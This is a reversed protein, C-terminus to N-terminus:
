QDPYSGASIWITSFSFGGGTRDVRMWLRGTTGAGEVRVAARFRVENERPILEPKVARSMQGFWQAYPDSSGTIMACRFGELCGVNVLDAKFAPDSPQSQGSGWRLPTQGLVGLEFNFNEAALAMSALHVIRLGLRNTNIRIPEFWNKTSRPHKPMTSNRTRVRRAWCPRPRSLGITEPKTRRWISCNSRRSSTASLVNRRCRRSISNRRRRRLRSGAFSAVCSRPLLSGNGRPLTM